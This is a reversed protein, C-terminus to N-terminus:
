YKLVASDDDFSNGRVHHSIDIQGKWIQCVKSSGRALAQGHSPQPILFFCVHATRFCTVAPASTVAFIQNAITGVFAERKRRPFHQYVLVSKGSQYTASLENWGVYKSSNKRGLPCSPVEIGNDPDFFVLASGEFARQVDRFYGERQSRDDPVMFDIFTSEGVIQRQEVFRLHRGRPVAEALTDFLDSDFRRWKEAQRLYDTRQGDSRRDNPTLMWCVALKLGSEAKLVRLLGYKRYDNVDGFYQHKM